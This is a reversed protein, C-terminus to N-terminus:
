PCFAPTGEVFLLSRLPPFATQADKKWFTGNGDDQTCMRSLFHQRLNFSGLRLRVFNDRKIKAGTVTEYTRIERIVKDIEAISKVLTSVDDSPVYLLHSLSWGQRIYRSLSFPESRVGNMELM